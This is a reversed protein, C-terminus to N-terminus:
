PQLPDVPVSPFQVPSPDTATSTPPFDYPVSLTSPTDSTASSFEASSRLNNEIQERTRAEIEFLINEQNLQQDSNARYRTEM